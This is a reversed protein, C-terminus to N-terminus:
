PVVITLRYPNAADQAGDAGYVRVYYLGNPKDTLYDITEEAFGPNDSYALLSGDQYYLELDYDGPVQDLEIQLLFGTQEYVAFWDEDGPITVDLGDSLNNDEVSEEIQDFTDIRVFSRQTQNAPFGPVTFYLRKVGNTQLNTVTEWDDGLMEAAPAGALNRYFDVDFSTNLTAGFNTVDAFYTVDVPDIYASTITYTASGSGYDGLYHPSVDNPEYVDKLGTQTFGFNSLQLDPKTETTQPENVVITVTAEASDGDADTVVLKAAYSGNATYLHSVNPTNGTQGDGFDWAFGLPADGGAATATFDVTLPSAGSVPTAGIAVVPVNDSGVSILLTASAADGTADTATVTAGYNGPTLYSHLPDEDTSTEGDGFTWAITVPAEGGVVESTFQVALPAVGTTQDAGATVAPQTASAVVIRVLAMAEDGDEDVAMFSAEFTGPTEYVHSTEAEGAGQGDGFEWSLELEGDGGAAVGRFEVELPAIGATVNATASVVPEQDVPEPTSSSNENKDGGDCAAIVSLLVISFSRTIRNM